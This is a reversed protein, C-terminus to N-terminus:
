KRFLGFASNAYTQTANSAVTGIQGVTTAGTQLVKSTTNVGTQLVQSTTDVAVQGLSQVLEAGINFADALISSTTNVVTPVFENAIREQGYAGVAELGNIAKNTLGQGTLKAYEKKLRDLDAMVPSTNFGAQIYRQYMDTREAISAEVQQIKALTDADITTFEVQVPQSQPAQQQFQPQQFQPAQAQQVQQAQLLQAIQAQLQAIQSVMGNFTTADVQVKSPDIQPQVQPAQYGAQALIADRNPDKIVGDLMAMKIASMEEPTLQTFVQEFKDMATMNTGGLNNNNNGQQNNQTKM